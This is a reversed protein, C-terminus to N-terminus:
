VHQNEVLRGREKKKRTRTGESKHWRCAGSLGSDADAVPTTTIGCFPSYKTGACRRVTHRRRCTGSGKKHGEREREGAARERVEAGHPAAQLHGLGEKGREGGREGAARERVQAAQLHGLGEKGKGV